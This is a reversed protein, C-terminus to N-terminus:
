SLIRSEYMATPIVGFGEVFLHRTSGMTTEEVAVKGCSNTRSGLITELAVKSEQHVWTCSRVTSGHQGSGQTGAPRHCSKAVMRGPGEVAVAENKGAPHCLPTCLLSPM